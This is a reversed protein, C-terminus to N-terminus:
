DNLLELAAKLQSDEGAKNEVVMDPEVGVGDIKSMNPSFYEAITLKIGDGRPLTIVQQVTGKGFTTVGVIQGAKTDKIAGALIESASASNENVLVVLDYQIHNLFSHYTDIGKKGYKIHVVPGEPVFLNAIYIAQDLFGGPNNRLDLIIKSINNKDMYGLSQLMKEYANTNFQELIIYGTDDIIKYDVPDIVINDRIVTVIKIYNKRRIRLKVKTGLEGKILKTAEEATLGKTTKGGVTVIIDNPLLGAKEAPSGKIPRVIKIYGNEEAIYAGIGIFNGELDENLKSFEEKTYYDSYDDLSDFLGDISGNLYEEMSKEEVYNDEVLNVIGNFYELDLDQAQAYTQIPSVLITMLMILSITSRKIKNWM